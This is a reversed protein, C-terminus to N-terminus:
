ARSADACPREAAILMDLEDTPSSLSNVTSAYRCVDSLAGVKPAKGCLERAARDRLLTIRM